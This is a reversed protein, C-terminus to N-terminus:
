ETRQARAAERFARRPVVFRWYLDALGPAIQNAIGGFAEVLGIKVEARGLLIGEVTMRAVREPPIMRFGMQEYVPKM